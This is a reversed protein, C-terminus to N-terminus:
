NLFNDEGEKFLIDCQKIKLLEEDSTRWYDRFYIRTVGAGRLHKLCNGCPSHTIFAWAGALDREAQFIANMEAHIENELSWARHEPCNGEPFVDCCNPTGKRTGNLGTSAIKDNM